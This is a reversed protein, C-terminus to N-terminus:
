LAIVVRVCTGGGPPSEITLHGNIDRARATMSRLGQGRVGADAFVDGASPLGRGDDRLELELTRPGRRVTLEVRSANAHRGTNNVAEKMIMLLNWRVEPSLRLGELDAPAHVTCAIGRGELLDTAFGRLRAVLSQLDDRNPHISWVLDNTSALLERATNAIDDLRRTVDPRRDEIDGKVVETLVAVRSLSSGLEDHLDTAIRTRVRQVAILRSVRTRHVAILVAGAMGVAAAIFWARQWIPPLVALAVVARARESTADGPIAEVVFRYDGPALSAYNVSRDLTPVSWDRDSGELRYRYRIADGSFNLAAFDVKLQNASPQLVLGAVATEGLDSVPVNLGGAVVGTVLVQGMHPARRATPTLRSVGGTTSFWLSGQRDRYAAVVENSALGTTRSAHRITREDPELRDLGNVGGFYMTGATDEAIVQPAGCPFPGNMVFSIRPQEEEPHDIRGIKESAAFWLRGARDVHVAALAKGPVGQTETLRVFRGDKYRALGGEWFAIWVNGARDEAMMPVPAYVPLGDADSYQEFRGTSRRWRTLVRRGPLRYGIWVDGRSDEFLRLVGQNALDRQGDYAARPPLRRLDELRRVSPFRYLGTASTVWWEGLHDRLMWRRSAVEQPPLRLRFSHFRRGDFRNLFYNATVVLLSGDVDELISGAGRSGLGDDEDYTVFGDAALRMAGRGMTGIWLNGAPDEALASVEEDVLGHAHRISRLRGDRIEALSSGVAAWVVGQGTEVLARVPADGAEPTAFVRVSALSDTERDLALLAHETALWVRGATDALIAFVTSRLASVAPTDEMRGDALRRALGASTGIWLTGRMDAFLAWVQVARDNGTAADLSVRRFTRDSRDLVFLGSDTGAWIRGSPDELVTNVYNTRPEDSVRYVTFRDPAVKRDPDFRVVGQGNTAIWYIGQKAEIVDIVSAMLGERPGYTVFQTGDYRALGGSTGFWLFGHSDRRIRWVKDNPLGDATTYLRLPLKEAQLPLVMSLVLAALTVALACGRSIRIPKARM